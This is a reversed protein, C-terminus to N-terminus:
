ERMTQALVVLMEPHVHGNSAVLTDAGVVFKGGAWDSIQGGAETVMLAGAAWDWPQLRMEWYGDVRGAAVACLDLAASGSRLIGQARVLFAGFQKLNNSPNTQRDYPFGTVLLSHALDPTRSVHLPRGNLTAGRGREAVYLEDRMVDYVVGVVIQQGQQLAISVSFQPYGHAFNTTGDLPDILWRFEASAGNEGTEEALFRHQPFAERLMALITAESEMDACTVLDIAGKYHIPLGSQFYSVLVQGARRAARIAVTVAEQDLLKWRYLFDALRVQGPGNLWSRM